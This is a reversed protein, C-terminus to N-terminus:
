ELEPLALPVNLPLTFTLSSLIQEVVYIIFDSLKFDKFFLTLYGLLNQKRYAPHKAFVQSMVPPCIDTVEPYRNSIRM